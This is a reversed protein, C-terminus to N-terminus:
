GDFDTRPYESTIPAKQSPSASEDYSSAEDVPAMANGMSPAVTFAREALVEGGETVLEVRWDGSKLKASSWTRWGQSTGVNLDVIAHINSGYHWVFSVNTLPGENSIRAFAYAREDSLEFSEATDAPERQYIGRSLILDQVVLDGEAYASPALVLASMVAVCSAIGQLACRGAWHGRNATEFNQMLLNLPNWPNM